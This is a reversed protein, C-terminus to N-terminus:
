TPESTGLFVYTTADRCIFHVITRATISPAGAIGFKYNAAWATTFAGPTIDINLPLGPKANTPNQMTANATHTITRNVGAAHDIAPSAGATIAVWGMASHLGDSGAVKGATGARIQAATAIDAIAIKLAIAAAQATSVPKDADATNNVVDLALAVKLAAVTIVGQLGAVSVVQDTNDVKDWVTGNSVIWDGVKWDNVGDVTTAGATGVKYYQGKNLSSAAPITPTNTNANWTGQYSLAGFLAAPLQAAPVKGTEDLSAVGNIAGILAAAVKADLAGQLGTTDSISHTHAAAAKTALSVLIGAIDVDIATLASILRLVDYDLNNDEHPLPYNRNATANDVM